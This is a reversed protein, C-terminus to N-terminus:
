HSAPALQGPSFQGDRLFGTIREKLSPRTYDRFKAGGLMEEAEKENATLPTAAPLVATEPAGNANAAPTDTHPKEKNDDTPTVSMISTPAGGERLDVFKKLINREPQGGIFLEAHALGYDATTDSDDMQRYCKAVKDNLKSQNQWTQQERTPEEGLLGKSRANIQDNTNQKTSM